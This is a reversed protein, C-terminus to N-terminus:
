AQRRDRPPVGLTDARATLLRRGSNTTATANQPFLRSLDANAREEARAPLVVLGLLAVLARGRIM